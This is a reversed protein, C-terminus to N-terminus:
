SVRWAWGAVHVGNPRRVASWEVGSVAMQLTPRKARNGVGGRAHWKLAFADMTRRQSICLIVFRIANGELKRGGHGTKTSVAPGTLEAFV